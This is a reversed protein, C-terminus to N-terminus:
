KTDEKRLLVAYIRFPLSPSSARKSPDFFFTLQGESVWATTGVRAVSTPTAFGGHIPTVAFADGQSGLKRFGRTDGYERVTVARM